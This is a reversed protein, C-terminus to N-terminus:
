TQTSTNSNKIEDKVDEVVSDPQDQEKAIMVNPDDYSEVVSLITQHSIDSEEEQAAQEPTVAEQVVTEEKVPEAPENAAEKAAPEETALKAAPEETVEKAAPEEAEQTAPEEAAEKPTEAPEPVVGESETNEVPTSGQPLTEKVESPNIDETVEKSQPEIEKCPDEFIGGKEDTPSSLRKSGSSSPRLSEIEPEGPTKKETAIFDGGSKPSDYSTDVEESARQKTDYFNESDVRTISKNDSDSGAAELDLRKKIVSMSLHAHRGILFVPHFIVLTICTFFIMLADLTMVFAEHTILYGTWGQALEVVRYVCRVYVFAVSVLLVIPGYHVLKRSRVSQYNPNYYPDLQQHLAKGKPTVLFLHFLRGFSFKINPNARFYIKFLFHFLLVLFLSMSFVQFAIGAVMVHTGSDTSEYDQIATAAMAGGVAQIVLSAVDCFIFIYSFWMPKLISYQRGYLILFQALLYYIGGMIFAPAITLSIIQCFFKDDNTWDHVSLARALYGALELGSGCFFAIGFYWFRSYLMLGTHCVFAFIFVATFIWNATKSLSADYLNKSWALEELNLTANFIAQTVQPFEQTATATQLYGQNSIVTLSAQAGRIVESASYLTAKATATAAIESAVSLSSQLASAHTSAISTLSTLTPMSLAVWTGMEQASSM